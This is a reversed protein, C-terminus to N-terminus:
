CKTCLPLAVTAQSCLIGYCDKRRNCMYTPLSLNVAYFCALSHFPLSSLLTHCDGLFQHVGSALLGAPDELISFSQVGLDLCSHLLGGAPIPVLWFNCSESRPHPAPPQLKHLFVVPNFANRTPRPVKPAKRFVLGSAVPVNPHAAAEAAPTWMGVAVQYSLSALYAYSHVTHPTLSHM